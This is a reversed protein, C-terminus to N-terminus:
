TVVEIGAARLAAPWHYEEDIANMMQVIQAATYGPQIGLLDALAAIYADQLGRAQIQEWLHLLEDGASDSLTSGFVKYVASFRQEWSLKRWYLPESM